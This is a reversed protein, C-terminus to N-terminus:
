GSFFISFIIDQHNQWTKIRSQERGGTGWFFLLFNALGSLLILGVDRVKSGVLFFAIGVM